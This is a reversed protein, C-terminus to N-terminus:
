HIMREFALSRSATALAGPGLTETLVGSLERRKTEPPISAQFM